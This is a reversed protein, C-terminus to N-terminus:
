KIQVEMLNVEADLKLGKDMLYRVRSLVGNSDVVSTGDVAVHALTQVQQQQPLPLTLLV